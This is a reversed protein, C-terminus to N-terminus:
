QMMWHRRCRQRLVSSREAWPKRLAGLGVLRVSVWVARGSRTRVLEEWCLASAVVLCGTALEDICPGRPSSGVKAWYLMAPRTFKLLLLYSGANPCQSANAPPATGPQIETRRRATMLPFVRELLPCQQRSSM